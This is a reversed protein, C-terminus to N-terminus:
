QQLEEIFLSSLDGLYPIAGYRSSSHLKKGLTNTMVSRALQATQLSWSLTRLRTSILPQLQIRKLLTSEIGDSAIAIWYTPTM